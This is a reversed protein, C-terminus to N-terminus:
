VPTIKLDYCYVSINPHPEVAYKLKDSAQAACIIGYVNQGDSALNKKVWGMYRSVQGVIEDDGQGKKLEMIYLDNNATNVTLLDIRGIGPIMYQRGYGDPNDYMKLPLHAFPIGRNIQAEIEDELRSEALFVNSTTRSRRTAPAPPELVTEATEIEDTDAVDDAIKRQQADKSLIERLKDFDKQFSKSINVKNAEWFEVAEYHRKLKKLLRFINQYPYNGDKGSKVSQRYYSLAQEYDKSKEFAYGLNNLANPYQPDIDLCKKYTTIENDCDKIKGYCWALDFYGQASITDPDIEIYRNFYAIANRWNKDDYYVYAVTVLALTFNKDFSIVKSLYDLAQVNDIKADLVKAFYTAATEPYIKELVRTMSDIFVQQAKDTLNDYFFFIYDYFDNSTLPNGGASMNEDLFITMNKCLGKIDDNLFCSIALDYYSGYNKSIMSLRQNARLFLCDAIQQKLQTDQNLTSINAYVYDVLANLLEGIAEPTEKEIHARVAKITENIDMEPTASNQNDM